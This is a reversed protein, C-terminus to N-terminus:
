WSVFGKWALRMLAEYIFKHTRVARNYRRGEMVGSCSGEAVIGAEVCLDQLGADKLRKGIVALLTCITHFVGLRVIIGDYQKPNKWIIEVAKAYLAQDFVYVISNLRLHTMVNLSQQLIEYVTSLQTAPANITPMYSISNANVISVISPQVPVVNTIREQEAIGNVRHSTGEGSLIEEARDINDWALITFVEPVISNSIATNHISSCFTLQESNSTTSLKQVCLATDIEQMLSYSICHGLRNLAIILEMNGTLSKISFALVIHKSPKM